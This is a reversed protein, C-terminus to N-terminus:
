IGDKKGISNNYQELDEAWPKDSKLQNIVDDCKSIVVTMSSDWAIIEMVSLPHQM